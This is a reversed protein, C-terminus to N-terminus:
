ELSNLKWAVILRVFTDYKVCRKHRHVTYYLFFIVNFRGFIFRSSTVQLFLYYKEHLSFQRGRFVTCLIIKWEPYFIATQSVFFFRFFILKCLM